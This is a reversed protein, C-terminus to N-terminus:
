NTRVRAVRQYEAAPVFQGNRFTEQWSNLGESIHKRTFDDFVALLPCPDVQDV